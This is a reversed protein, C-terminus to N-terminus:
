EVFCDTHHRKRGYVERRGRQAVQHFHIQSHAEDTGEIHIQKKQKRLSLKQYKFFAMEFRADFRDCCLHDRWRPALRDFRTCILKKALRAKM